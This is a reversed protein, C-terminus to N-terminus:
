KSLLYERWANEIHLPDLTENEIIRLSSYQGVFGSFSDKSFYRNSPTIELIGSILKKSIPLPISHRLSIEKMFVNTKKSLNSILFKNSPGSIPLLDKIAMKIDNLPTLYIEAEEDFRPYIPSFRFVKKLRHIQGNFNKDFILGCILNSQSLSRISDQISRKYAGYKNIKDLYGSVSAINIIRINREAIWELTRLEFSLNDMNPEYPRALHLLLECNGIEEKDVANGISFLRQNSRPSSSFEVISVEPHEIRLYRIISTGLPSNAGSIGVRTIKRL